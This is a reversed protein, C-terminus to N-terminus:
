PRASDPQPTFQHSLAAPSPPAEITLIARLPQLPGTPNIPRAVPTIEISTAIWGAENARVSNLFAGLQELSLPELTLSACQNPSAADLPAAPTLARLTSPALSATHLSASVHGVLDTPATAPDASAPHTSRLDNFEALDAAIAASRTLSDHLRAASTRYHLFSLTVLAIGSLLTLLLKM